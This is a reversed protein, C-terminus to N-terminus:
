AQDLGMNFLPTKQPFRDFLGAWLGEHSDAVQSAVKKAQSLVPLQVHVILRCHVASLQYQHLECPIWAHALSSATFLNEKSSSYLHLAPSEFISPDLSNSANFRYLTNIIQKGQIMACHKCNLIEAM